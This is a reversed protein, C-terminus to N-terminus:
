LPKVKDFCDYELDNFKFKLLIKNAIILWLTKPNTKKISLNQAEVKGSPENVSYLKISFNYKAGM